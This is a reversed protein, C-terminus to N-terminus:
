RLSSMDGDGILFDLLLTPDELIQVKLSLISFVPVHNFLWLEAVCWVRNQKFVLHPVGVAETFNEAAKAVTAFLGWGWVGSNPSALNGLPSANDDKLLSADKEPELPEEEIESSNVAEAKLAIGTKQEVTVPQADMIAAVKRADSEATATNSAPEKTGESSSADMSM